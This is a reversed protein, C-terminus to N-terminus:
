QIEASAACDGEGANGDKSLQKIEKTSMGTLTSIDDPAMNMKLANRAIAQAEKKRWEAGLGSKEIIRRWTPSVKNMNAEMMAKNANMIAFMYANLNYGAGKEGCMRFIDNLRDASLKAGLNRLWFNEEGELRKSEIIQIPLIDGKVDYVGPTGSWWRM